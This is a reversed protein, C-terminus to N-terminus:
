WIQSFGIFIERIGFLLDDERRERIIMPEIGPARRARVADCQRGHPMPNPSAKQYPRRDM